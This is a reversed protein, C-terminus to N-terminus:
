FDVVGLVGGVGGASFSFVGVGVLGIGDVGVFGVGAVVCVVIGVDGDIVVGVVFHRAVRVLVVNHLKFLITICCHSVTNTVVAVVTDLQLQKSYCCCSIWGRRPSVDSRMGVPEGYPNGEKATTLQSM